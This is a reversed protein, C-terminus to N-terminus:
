RAAEEAIRGQDQSKCILATRLTQLDMIRHSDRRDLHVVLEAESVMLALKARMQVVDNEIHSMHHVEMWAFVTMSLITIINRM